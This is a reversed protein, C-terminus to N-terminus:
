LIHSVTVSVTDCMKHCQRRSLTVCKTVTDCVLTVSDCATLFVWSGLNASLFFGIGWVRGWLFGRYLGCGGGCSVGTFFINCVTQKYGPGGWGKVVFLFNCAGCGVM